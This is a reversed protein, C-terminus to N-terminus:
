GLFIVFSRLLGSVSGVSKFRYPFGSVVRVRGDLAILMFVFSSSGVSRGLCAIAICGLFYDLVEVVGVVM